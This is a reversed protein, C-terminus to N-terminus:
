SHLLMSGGFGAGLLLLGISLMWLAHTQKRYWAIFPAPLFLLCLIADLWQKRFLRSFTVILWGATVAAVGILAMMVCLANLTENM